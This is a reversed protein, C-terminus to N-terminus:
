AAYNYPESRILISVTHLIITFPNCSIFTYPHPIVLVCVGGLWAAAASVLHGDGDGFENRPVGFAAASGRFRSPTYIIKRKFTECTSKRCKDSSHRKTPLSMPHYKNVCTKEDSLGSGERAHM